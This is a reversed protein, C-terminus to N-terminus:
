SASSADQKMHVSSLQLLLSAQGLHHGGESWLHVRLLLMNM